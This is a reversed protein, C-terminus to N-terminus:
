VRARWQSCSLNNAVYCSSKEIQKGRTVLIILAEFLSKKLLGMDIMNQQDCAVSSGVSGDLVQAIFIIASCCESEFNLSCFDDHHLYSMNVGALAVWLGWYPSWETGSLLPWWILSLVISIVSLLKLTFPFTQWDWRLEYYLKTM